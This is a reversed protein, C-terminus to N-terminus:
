YNSKVRGDRLRLKFQNIIALIITIAIIVASKAAVGVCLWLGGCNWLEVMVLFIVAVSVALSIEVAVRFEEVSIYRKDLRVLISIVLQNILLIVAQLGLIGPALLPLIAMIEILTIWALANYDM